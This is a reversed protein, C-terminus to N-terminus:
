MSWCGIINTFVAQLPFKSITTGPPGTPTPCCHQIRHMCLYNWLLRVGTRIDPTIICLSIPNIDLQGHHNTQGLLWVKWDQENSHSPVLGEFTPQLTSPIHLLAGTRTLPCRGAGRSTTQSPLLHPIVAAPPSLPFSAPVFASPLPFHIPSLAM